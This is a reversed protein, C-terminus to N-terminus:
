VFGEDFVVNQILLAEAGVQTRNQNKEIFEMKKPRKWIWRGDKMDLACVREVLDGVM